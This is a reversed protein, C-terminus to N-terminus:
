VSHDLFYGRRRTPSSRCQVLRYQLTNTDILERWRPFKSDNCCVSCLISCSIRASKWLKKWLCLLLSQSEPVWLIYSNNNNSGGFSTINKTRDTHIDTQRDTQGDYLQFTAFPNQRVPLAHGLSRHTWNQHRDPDGDPDLLGFVSIWIWQIRVNPPPRRERLM